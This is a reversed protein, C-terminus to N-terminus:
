VRRGNGIRLSRSPKAGHRPARPPFSHRSGAAISRGPAPAHQSGESSVTIWALDWVRVHCSLCRKVFNVAQPSEVFFYWCDAHKWLSVGILSGCSPPAGDFHRYQSSFQSKLCALLFPSRHCSSISARSCHDGVRTRSLWL